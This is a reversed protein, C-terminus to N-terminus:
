SMLLYSIATIVVFGIMKICGKQFFPRILTYGRDTRGVLRGDQRAAKMPTSDENDERTFQKLDHTPEVSEPYPDLKIIPIETVSQLLEITSINEPFSTIIRHHYM